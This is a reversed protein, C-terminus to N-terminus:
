YRSRMGGGACKKNSAYVEVDTERSRPGVIVEDMPEVSERGGGPRRRPTVLGKTAAEGTDLFVV